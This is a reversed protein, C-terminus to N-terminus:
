WSEIQFALERNPVVVVSNAQQVSLASSEDLGLERLIHHDRITLSLLSLILAFTKGSGTHQRVLLNNTATTTNRILEEQMSSPTHVQFRTELAQILKTDIGLDAFGSRTSYLRRRSVLVACRWM